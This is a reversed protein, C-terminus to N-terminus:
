FFSSGAPDIGCFIREMRKLLCDGAGDSGSQTIVHRLSAEVGAPPAPECHCRGCLLLRSDRRIECSGELYLTLQFYLCPISSWWIWITVGHRDCRRRGREWIANCRIFTIEVREDPVYCLIEWSGSLFADIQPTSTVSQSKEGWNATTCVDWTIINILLTTNHQFYSSFM